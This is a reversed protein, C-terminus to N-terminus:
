SDEADSHPPLLDKPSPGEMVYRWWERPRWTAVVLGVLVAAPVEWREPALWAGARVGLLVWVLRPLVRVLRRAPSQQSTLPHPTM